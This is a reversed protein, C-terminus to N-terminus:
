FTTNQDVPRQMRVSRVRPSHTWDNKTFLARETETQGKVLSLFSFHGFEPQVSNM